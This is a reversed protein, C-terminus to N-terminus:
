FGFAALLLGGFMGLETWAAAEWFSPTVLDELLEVAHDVDLIPLRAALPIAPVLAITQM